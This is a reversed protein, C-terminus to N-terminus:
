IERAAPEPLVERLIGRAVEHEAMVVTDAGHQRLYEAEDASHARAVISLGENVERGARIIQGAEFANPIAVILRHAARLNAARIVDPAAASGHIIEIGEAHLQSAIRDSDEIVVFPMEAQKLAAGVVSGVRGYGVLVTHDTM